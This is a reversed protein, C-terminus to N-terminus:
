AGSVEKLDDAPESPAGSSTGLYAAVVAPDRRVEAPTGAAIVAGFDLVVLYDCISLVLGMDHDILVVATDPGAMASIRRGLEASETPDLGAAPEDLLLVSPEAVLARAVGVLKRQGEPLSAPSTEAAYALGLRDLIPGVQVDGSRAAVELNERVTLDDFLDAGQWTRALGARARRHASMGNLDTGDLHIRGRAPVFGTLADILTTKGAGNPGILGVIQGRRVELDVDSLAKVPGFSVSLGTAKLIVDGNM